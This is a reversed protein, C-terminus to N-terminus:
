AKVAGILIPLETFAIRRRDAIRFSEDLSMM